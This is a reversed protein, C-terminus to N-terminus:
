EELVEKIKVEKGTSQDKFFSEFGCFDEHGDYQEHEVFVISYKKMLLLMENKFNNLNDNM